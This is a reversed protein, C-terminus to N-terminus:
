SGAAHAGSAGFGGRVVSAVASRWGSPAATAAATSRYGTGFGFSHFGIPHSTCATAVDPRSRLHADICDRSLAVATGELAVGGGMLVLLIATPRRM